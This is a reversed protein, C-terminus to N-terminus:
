AWIHRKLHRDSPTQQWWYTRLNLFTQIQDLPPPCPCPCGKEFVESGSVRTVEIIWIQFEEQFKLVVELSDEWGVKNPKLHDQIRSYRRDIQINRSSNKSSNSSNDQRTTIAFKLTSKYEHQFTEIKEKYKEIEVTVKNSLKVGEAKQTEDGEMNLLQLLMTLNSFNTVQSEEIQEGKQVNIKLQVARDVLM